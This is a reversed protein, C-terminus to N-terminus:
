FNTYETITINDDGEGYCIVKKMDATEKQIEIIACPKEIREHWEAYYSYRTAPRGDRHPVEFGLRLEKLTGPQLELSDEANLKQNYYTLTLNADLGIDVRVLHWDSEDGQLAQIYHKRFDTRAAVNESKHFIALDSM